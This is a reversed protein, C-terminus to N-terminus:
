KTPISCLSTSDSSWSIYRPSVKVSVFCYLSSLIAANLKSTDLLISFSTSPTTCASTTVALSSADSTMGVKWHLSHLWVNELLFCFSFWALFCLFAIQPSHPNGQKSCFRSLCLFLQGRCLSLLFFVPLLPFFIDTDIDLVIALVSVSLLVSWHRWLRTLKCRNWVFQQCTVNDLLM